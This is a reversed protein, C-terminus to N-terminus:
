KLFQEYRKLYKGFVYYQILVFDTDKNILGIYKDTDYQLKDGMPTYQTKTREYVPMQYLKITTEAGKVDTIRLLAYPTKNKLTDINPYQNIYNEAYSVEFYRLYEHMRASDPEKGEIIASALLPQLSRKGEKQTLIFSSEPFLTYQMYVESIQEPKYMFLERSRWVKPDAIFYPVLSGTAGPVNVVYVKKSLKGKHEQIMYTGQGSINGPGVLFTKLLKNNKGYVRVRTNFNLMMKNVNDQAANAVPYEVQLNQVVELMSSVVKERAKYQHNIMWINNEKSLIATDGNTNSLIVQEIESINKIAFDRENYMFSAIWKPLIIAVALISLIIFVLGIIRIRKM